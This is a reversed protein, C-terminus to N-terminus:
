RKVACLLGDGVPLLSPVLDQSERVTRLLERLRIVETPQPSADVTRGNAFVGEFVSSAERVSCGCRNLSTTSASWATATASSSTTAPTRSGPCFTWPAARSSAPGTAPSAPVRPLGAPRVAPARAGPGRHDPRRGAAYRAASSDRLRRDRDRDGGGGQRGRLRRAVAARRGHRAVGLAARGRPGPRPGLAARRGRRCLRRRVGLEDAPQRYHGEGTGTTAQAHSYGNADPVQPHSRDNLPIRSVCAPPLPHILVGPLVGPLHQRLLMLRTLM